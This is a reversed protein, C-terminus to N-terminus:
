LFLTPGSESLALIRRPQEPMGTRASLYAAEIVAMNELQEQGGCQLPHEAPELISMAFSELAAKTAADADYVIRKRKLKEGAPNEIRMAGGGLVLVKNKGYCKIEESQSTPGAARTAVLNVCLDSGYNMMVVVSDETLLHRQQRDPAANNISAYIVEPLGFADILSDIIEYADRLLVGGGALKPDNHWAPRHEKRYSCQATVVTVQEIDYKEIASKLQSNIDGYRRAVGVALKVGETKALRVLESAEEFNRALPKLKFINFKKKIAAKIYQECSYIGAAALVCDFENQIVFQRYDDYAECGYQKATAQALETDKDAVAALQFYESGATISLLRAVDPDDKLGLVATKLKDRSMNADQMKVIWCGTDLM